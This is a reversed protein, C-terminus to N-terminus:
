HTAGNYRPACVDDDFDVGVSIQRTSRDFGLCFPVPCFAVFIGGISLHGRLCFAVRVFPWSAPKESSLDKIVKRQVQVVPLETGCTLRIFDTGESYLDFWEKPVSQLQLTVLVSCWDSCNHRLVSVEYLCGISVAACCYCRNASASLRTKNWALTIWTTRDSYMLKSQRHLKIINWKFLTNRWYTYLCHTNLKKTMILRRASESDDSAVFMIDHM